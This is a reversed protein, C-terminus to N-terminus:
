KGRWKMLNLAMWWPVLCKVGRSGQDEGQDEGPEGLDGSGQDEGGPEELLPQHSQVTLISILMKGHVLIM